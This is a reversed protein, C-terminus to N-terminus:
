LGTATEIDFNEATKRLDATEKAVEELAKDRAEERLQGAEVLEAMKGELMALSGRTVAHRTVEAILADEAERKGESLSDARWMVFLLAVSVGLAIGGRIGLFRGATLLWSM